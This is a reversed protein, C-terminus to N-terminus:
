FSYGVKINIKGTGEISKITNDVTDINDIEHYEHFIIRGTIGTTFNWRKTKGIYIKWGIGPSVWPMSIWTEFGQRWIGLGLDAFFMGAWPYWRAYLDAYPILIGDVGIDVALAFNKHLLREYGIDLGPMVPPLFGGVGVWMISIGGSITNKLSVEEAHVHIIYLFFLFIILSRKM